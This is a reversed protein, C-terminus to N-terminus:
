VIDKLIQDAKERADLKGSDFVKTSPYDNEEFVKTLADITERPIEPKGLKTTREAVRDDRINRDAELRYVFFHANQKDTIQKLTEIQSRNIGQEVIVNIGNKLYEEAMTNIVKMSVEQHSPIERFESIFRKIHDVGIHATYSLEDHLLDALTTKGAGPAGYIVILSLNKPKIM